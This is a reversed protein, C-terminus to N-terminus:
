AGERVHRRLRVLWNQYSTLGAGRIRHLREASISLREAALRSICYRVAAKGDEVLGPFKTPVPRYEAAAVVFGARALEYRMETFKEHDASTFGGGPFYIIAPKKAKNRPIQITMRLQKIARMTKVQSYIIGSITDIRGDTVAVKVVEADPTWGPLKSQDAASVSGALLACCIAALKFAPKM